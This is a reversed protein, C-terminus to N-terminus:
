SSRLSTSRLGNKSERSAYNSDPFGSISSSADLQDATISNLRKQVSLKRLLNKWVNSKVKFERFQWKIPQKTTWAGVFQGQIARM